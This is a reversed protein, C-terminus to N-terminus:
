SAPRSARIAAAVKELLADFGFPKRIVVYGECSAADAATMVIVPIQRLAADARMRRCVEIGGLVPMMVDLLVLDPRVEEIRALAERGNAATQVGYGESELATRLTETIDADDDVVVLVSKKM